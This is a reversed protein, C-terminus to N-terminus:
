FNHNRAKDYWFQLVKGLCSSSNEFDVLEKSGPTELGNIYWKWYNQEFITILHNIYIEFNINPVCYSPLFRWQDISHFVFSDIVIGSLKYSQFYKDKIIRIIKCTFTLLDNSMKNKEKMAEQIKRPNTIKWKGGKNTDPYVFSKDFQEFAPLIEFVIGDRFNIKIIQGDARIESTSYADKIALKVAQLLRSQSNGKLNNAWDFEKAPLIVLIDIDSSSIATNRGYSGVYLSNNTESLSNWFEKNIAKTIQKYRNSIKTRKELNISCNDILNRM